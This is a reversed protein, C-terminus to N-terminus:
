RVKRRKHHQNYFEKLHCVMFNFEQRAMLSDDEMMEDHIRMIDQLVSTNVEVLVKGDM